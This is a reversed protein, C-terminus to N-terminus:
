CRVVCLEEKIIHPDDLTGLPQMCFALYFTGNFDKDGLAKLVFSRDSDWDAYRVDYTRPMQHWGREIAAVAKRGELPRFVGYLAAFEMAVAYFPARVIMWIGEVIGKPVTWVLDKLFQITHAKDRYSLARGLSICLTVLATIPTRILHWSISAMLFFPIGIVLGACKCATVYMPEHLYRVKPETKLDIVEYRAEKEGSRHLFPVTYTAWGAPLAEIPFESCLTTM